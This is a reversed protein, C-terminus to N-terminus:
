LTLGNFRHPLSFIKIVFNFKLISTIDLSAVEVKRLQSVRNGRDRATSMYISFESLM